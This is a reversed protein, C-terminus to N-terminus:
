QKRRARKVGRSIKQRTALTHRVPKHPRSVGSRMQVDLRAGGRGLSVGFEQVTQMAQERPRGIMPYWWQLVALVRVLMELQTVHNGGPQYKVLTRCRAREERTTDNPIVGGTPIPPYSSLELDLLRREVRSTELLEGDKMAVLPWLFRRNLGSVEWQNFRLSQLAPPMAGIVTCHATTRNIRSDEFAAAQFGEAAMARLTGVVHEATGVNGREYLKAFEPLVITRISESAIQGRLDTLARANIDSLSIANHYNHDIVSLLASKLTAPDGIIVLGGRERLESVVYSSLHAACLVEIM